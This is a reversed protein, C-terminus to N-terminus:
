FFSLTRIKIKNKVRNRGSAFLGRKDYSRLLKRLVKQKKKVTSGLLKKKSLYCVKYSKKITNELALFNLGM